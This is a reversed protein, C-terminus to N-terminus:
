AATAPQAASLVKAFLIVYNKGYAKACRPCMTYAFYLKELEQHQAAVYRQMDAIWKGTNRYSGEYVKTLFSGSISAMRAGPVPRTVEMYLETGWPSRDHSLVLPHSAPAAAAEAILRENQMVRSRMDIPIHFLCHVHDTVFLKENWVIQKGDWPTPDFLPCCGTTTSSPATAESKKPQQM